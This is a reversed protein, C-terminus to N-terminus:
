VDGLPGALLDSALLRAQTRTWHRYRDPLGVFVHGDGTPLVVLSAGQEDAAALLEDMPPQAKPTARTAISLVRWPVQQVPVEAVAARLGSADLVDGLSNRLTELFKAREGEAPPKASRAISGPTPGRTELTDVIAEREPLGLDYLDFVFANLEEFLAEDLGKELAKSLGRMTELQPSALRDLPVVPFFDLSELYISEWEVGFHADTMLSVFPGLRSQLLLQLLRARDPGRAVESFSLGHFSEHFAVASVSRMSRPHLPEAPIAKRVLLLPPDYNARDRPFLLTGRRFRPLASPDLLFANGQYGKLDPLDHLAAASRQTGAGGGVQYGNCFRLGPKLRNLHEKLPEGAAMVSELARRALRDGRFRSKLSWPATRVEEYRVVESDGWDIRLVTQNRARQEEVFPSVFHFAGDSHAPDNRAFVLCFSATVNPWVETLRLAAGNLIGTVNFATFIDRRSEVFRDSLGFLWRAHLVLAIRGGPKAWEGARWLFPLDPNTDPLDFTAAGPGLRARVAEGTAAVWRRKAEVGKKKATWPPNGVVADFRGAFEATVRALSGDEEERPRLVGSLDDFRLDDIPQPKPDLELATLYLGLRALRLAREDKDFAALQGNLIRRIARRAPRKGTREWERRVLHRFAAILFVGAGAAPDLVRPREVDIADLTEAVVFEAIHRPTYHVSEQDADPDVKHAFAEYVESLLGVPVQSFDIENWDTPLRLQGTSTAGAAINGLVKSFVESPFDKPKREFPLLGGNFTDELWKLTQLARPKTSLCDTWTSAGDALDGPALGILLERDVLFRWFLGWGVLSIADLPSVGLRVAQQMSEFLLEKLYERRPLEAAGSRVSQIFRALGATGRPIAEPTYSVGKVTLNFSLVDVRGPRVIATYAPDGRLLVRRCWGDVVSPEVGQRGDFVFVRPVREHELVVPTRWDDDSKRLLDLYGLVRPSDDFPDVIQAPLAGYALLEQSLKPIM